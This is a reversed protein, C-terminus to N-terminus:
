VSTGAHEALVLAVDDSRSRHGHLRLRRLLEGLALDPDPDRLADSNEVLSFFEGLDNRAEVVGDTYLLIRAHEPWGCEVSHPETGLGLPPEPDGTAILRPPVDRHLMLPPHHGCNVVTVVDDHFEALVATVFDEAAAVSTVASDLDSAVDELTPALLASRRFAALVISAMRVADLGKGRVDAVILRVGNSTDAVDYLDGGVLADATASVYRAALRVDHVEPPMVPLVARQVKEAVVTM